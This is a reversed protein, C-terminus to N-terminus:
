GRKYSFTVNINHNSYFTPCFFSHVDVSIVSYLKRYSFCESNLCKIDVIQQSYKFGLLLVIISIIERYKEKTEEHKNELAM